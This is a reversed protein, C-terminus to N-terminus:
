QQDQQSLYLSRIILRLGTNKRALNDRETRTENLTENLVDIQVGKLNNLAVQQALQRELKETTKRLSLPCLEKLFRLLGM